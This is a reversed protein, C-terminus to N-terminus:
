VGSYGPLGCLFLLNLDKVIEERTVSFRSALESIAIGQNNVVFPVLDLLRLAREAANESM